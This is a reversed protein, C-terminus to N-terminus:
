TIEYTGDDAYQKKQMISNLDNIEEEVIQLEYNPVKEKILIRERDLKLYNM